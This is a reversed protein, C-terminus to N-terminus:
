GLIEEIANWQLMDFDKIKYKKKSPFNKKQNM